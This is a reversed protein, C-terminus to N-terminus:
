CHRKRERSIGDFEYIEMEGSAISNLQRLELGGFQHGNV